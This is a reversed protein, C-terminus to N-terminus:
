RINLLGKTQATQNHDKFIAAIELPTCGYLLKIEADRKALDVSTIVAVVKKDKATGLWIDICAGDASSTRDLYGYDFPYTYNPYNPHRTGKPRDIVIDSTQVLEDLLLWFSAETNPEQHTM